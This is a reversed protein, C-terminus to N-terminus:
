WNAVYQKIIGRWGNSMEALWDDVFVLLCFAFSVDAKPTPSIDTALMMDPSKDNKESAVDSSVSSVVVCELGEAYM